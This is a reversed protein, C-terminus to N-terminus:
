EFPYHYVIKKNDFLLRDPYKLYMIKKLKKGNNALIVLVYKSNETSGPTKNQSCILSDQAVQAAGTAPAFIMSTFVSILAIKIRIGKM